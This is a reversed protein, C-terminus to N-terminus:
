RSFLSPDIDVKDQTGFVGCNVEFPNEPNRCAKFPDPAHASIGPSVYISGPRREQSGESKKLDGPNPPQLGGKPPKIGPSIRGQQLRTFIDSM